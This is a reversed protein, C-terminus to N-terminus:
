PTRERGRRSAVQGSERAEEGGASEVQGCDARACGFTKESRSRAVLPALCAQSSSRSRSARIRSRARLSSQRGLWCRAVQRTAHGRAVVGAHRSLSGAAHGQRRKRARGSRLSLFGDGPRSPCCRDGRGAGVLPRTASCSAPDGDPAPEHVSPAVGRRRRMTEYAASKTLEGIIGSSPRRPRTLCRCGLWPNAAGVDRRVAGAARGRAQGGWAWSMAMASERSPL